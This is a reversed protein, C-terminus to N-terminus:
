DDIFLWVGPFPPVTVFVVDPYEPSDAMGEWDVWKFVPNFRFEGPIETSDFFYRRFVEGKSTGFGRLNNRLIGYLREVSPNNDGTQESFVLAAEVDGSSVGNPLHSFDMDLVDQVFDINDQLEGDEGTYAEYTGDNLGEVIPAVKERLSTM